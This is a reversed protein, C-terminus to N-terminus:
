YIFLSVMFIFRHKYVEVPLVALTNTFEDARPIESDRVSLAEEMAAADAMQRGSPHKSRCAM